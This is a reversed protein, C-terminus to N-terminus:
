RVHAISSLAGGASQSVIQQWYFAFSLNDTYNDAQKNTSTYLIVGNQPGAATPPTNSGFVEVVATPSAAFSWQFTIGARQVPGSDVPALVRSTAPATLADAVPDFLVVDSGSCVSVSLPGNSNFTPM